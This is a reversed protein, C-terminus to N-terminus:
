ALSALRACAAVMCFCSQRMSIAIPLILCPNLLIKIGAEDRRESSSRVMNM